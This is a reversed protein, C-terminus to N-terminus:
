PADGMPSVQDRFVLRRYEEVPIIVAVGRVSHPPGEPDANRGTTYVLTGQDAAAADILARQPAANFEEIKLLKVTRPFGDALQRFGCRFIATAM